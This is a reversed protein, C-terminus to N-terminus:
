SRGGQRRIEALRVELTSLAKKLFDNETYLKGILRDKEALKAELTYAKGRGSFAKNQYYAHGMKWKYLLSPNISHERSLQAISRGTKLEHIVSLKFEKTFSRKPGM